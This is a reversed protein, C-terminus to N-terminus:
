LKNFFVIAVSVIAVSFSVVSIDNFFQEGENIFLLQILHWKKKLSSFGYASNAFLENWGEAFFFTPPPPNLHRLCWRSFQNQLQVFSNGQVLVQLISTWKERQKIEAASYLVSLSPHSTPLSFALESFTLQMVLPFVVVATCHYVACLSSWGRSDIASLM